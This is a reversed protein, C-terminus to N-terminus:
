AQDNYDPVDPISGTYSKKECRQHFESLTETTEGYYAKLMDIYSQQKTILKDQDESV